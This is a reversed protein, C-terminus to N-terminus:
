QGRQKSQRQFRFRDLLSRVAGQLGHLKNALIGQREWREIAKDFGEDLHDQRNGRSKNRGPKGRRNNVRKSM